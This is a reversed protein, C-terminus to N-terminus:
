SQAENEESPGSEFLKCFRERRTKHPRPNNKRTHTMHCYDCNVGQKCVQKSVVYICTKCAREAHKASGASPLSETDSHQASASPIRLSDLQQDDDNLQSSRSGYSSNSRMQIDKLSLVRKVIHKHTRTARTEGASTDGSGSVSNVPTAEPNPEIKGWIIHRM